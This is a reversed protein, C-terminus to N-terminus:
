VDVTFYFMCVCLEAYSWLYRSYSKLSVMCPLSQGGFTVSLKFMRLCALQFM